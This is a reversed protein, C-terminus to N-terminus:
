VNKLASLNFQWSQHAQCCTVKSFKQCLLHCLLFSDIGWLLCGTHIFRRATRWLLPSCFTMKLIRCDCADVRYEQCGNLHISVSMLNANLSNSHYPLDAAMSFHYLYKYSNEGKLPLNHDPEEPSDQALSQQNSSSVFQPLKVSISSCRVSNLNLLSWQKVVYHKFFVWVFIRSDSVKQM